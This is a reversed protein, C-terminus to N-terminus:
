RASAGAADVSPLLSAQVEKPLTGKPVGILCIERWPRYHSKFEKIIKKGDNHTVTYTFKADAGDHARETCKKEGVPLDETQTLLPPEPKVINYVTSSTQEAVRGDKTGWFEFTLETGNFKSQILIYNGTDNKFKYDPAPDYITADTGAPEYYPVRYSHNQRQIIPLGSSLTGRFVTTGIQCLGGGFERTTNNGKIVLEPLYGAEENVKGLTKLLSFEEAPAILIGNVAAAGTKINHIRNPPSGKFNSKGVGIIETIGLNNINATSVRPDITITSVALAVNSKKDPDLLIKLLDSETKEYDLARGTKSAQFESVKGEEIKFKADVPREEVVRAINQLFKFMSETKLILSVAGDKDKKFDLWALFDNRYIHWQRGNFELALPLTLALKEIKEKLPAVEAATVTPTDQALVLDTTKFNLDAIQYKLAEAVDRFNFSVGDTGDSFKISDNQYLPRPNHAPQELDGFNERLATILADTFITYNIQREVGLFIARAIKPIDSFPNNSHGFAVLEDATKEVNVKFLQYFLDPDNAAVVEPYITATRNKYVFRM